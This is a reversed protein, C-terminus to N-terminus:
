GVKGWRAFALLCLINPVMLWITLKQFISAANSEGDIARENDDTGLYFVELFPFIVYAVIPFSFLWLGGQHISWAALLSFAHASLYVLPHM